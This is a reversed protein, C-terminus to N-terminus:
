PFLPLWQPECREKMDKLSEEINWFRTELVGVAKDHKLSCDRPRDYGFAVSDVTVPVLLDRDLGFSAALRVGFEFRSLREPGALHYIGQLDDKEALELLIECVNKAYVPTRFEDVFLRVKEGLKLKEIIAETFCKSQNASRGYVLAIRAICYNSSLSQLIQEGMLKTKGYFHVPKPIDRESYYSRSGDFVMDTSTHILRAGVQEAAHAVNRVGDVNIEWAAQQHEECFGSDTLAAAHIIVTPSIKRVLRETEAKDTIDMCTAVDSRNTPCPSCHYTFYTQAFESALSVLNGGLFGSGGIILLRDM